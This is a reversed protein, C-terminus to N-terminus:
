FGVYPPAPLTTFFREHRTAKLWELSALARQLPLPLIRRDVITRLPSLETAARVAGFETLLEFFDKPKPLVLIDCDAPLKGRQRAETLAEPLGGIADVLGHELAQAGTWVRGEAVTAVAEKSLKRGDAVRALFTDYIKRMSAMVLNEGSETLRGYADAIRARKGRTELEMRVGIKGCLESVDPIAGIVGISGTITGREAIIWSAPCAVYYGGSAAVDGMSVVVPKEAATREVERWIVDSALASGGPSDIRFVVAKVSTDERAQRFVRVMERANMVSGGFLSGGSDDSLIAGVGYVLAIKPNTNPRARRKAGLLENFLKMMGAFGSLDLDLKKRTQAEVIQLNDGTRVRAEFADAFEVADVLGAEKADSGLFLARDVLARAELPALKRNEALADVYEEFLADLLANTEERVAPSPENRTFTEMASKYRGMRLEQFRVGAKELLDKAYLRGMSVGSIEVAGSPLLSVHSCASAVLYAGGSATELFCFSPKDSQRFDLLARRLAQAQTWGLLPSRLRLVLAHVQDDDKAQRLTELTSRLSNGLSGGFLQLPPNAEFLQGNLTLRLVHPKPKAAGDEQAAVHATSFTIVAVLTQLRLTQLRLM